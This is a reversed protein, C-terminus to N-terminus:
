ESEGSCYDFDKVHQFFGKFPFDPPVLRWVENSAYDEFWRDDNKFHDSKGHFYFKPEIEEMEGEDLRDSIYKEFMNFEYLSNFEIIEKLWSHM